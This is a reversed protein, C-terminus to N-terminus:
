NISLSPQKVQRVPSNKLISIARRYQPDNKTGALAPNINLNMQEEKTLDVQIDPTIGRQNIDIGSPPYYQAITVTLGSGDSLSHLSQVKGKGYTRTGIVTARKNEKLAGALIESASASYQDVLVALPLTTLATGNASFNQKGGKRDITSVIAGKELWMRAIEVSSFLLGGPNSRLDLVFGSIEEKSLNEIAQKMQEAAHSSFEDLKIYGVKLNDEDQVHYEVSPLEIQARTITVAFTEQGQRAIQLSVETGVEGKIEASAQELSMLSTPKNNIRLIRDGEKIGVEAAPSNALPQVVVLDSTKEDIALIIGVGSLEGATQSTLEEYEKPELFRTYPDGLEKLSQRIAQYAEARDSYDKSLLEQRKNQWDVQNFKHDVFENNVIQWVEDVVTKPSDELAANVSPSAYSVVFSTTALTLMLKISTVASLNLRKMLSYKRSTTPQNSSPMSPQNM